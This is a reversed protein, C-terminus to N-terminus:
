MVDEKDAGVDEEETAGDIEDGRDELRGTAIAFKIIVAAMTTTPSWRDLPRDKGEKSWGELAYALDGWRHGALGGLEQRLRIIDSEQDQRAIRGSEFCNDPHGGCDAESFQSFVELYCIKQCHDCSFIGERYLHLSLNPSLGLECSPAFIDAIAVVVVAGDVVVAVGAAEDVFVFAASERYKKM